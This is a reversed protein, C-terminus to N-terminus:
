VHDPWGGGAVGTQFGKVTIRMQDEGTLEVSRKHIVIRMAVDEPRVQMIGRCGLEPEPCFYGMFGRRYGNVAENGPNGEGRGPYREAM